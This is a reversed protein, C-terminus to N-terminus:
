QFIEIERIIIWKKRPQTGIKLRICKINVLAPSLTLDFEGYTFNGIVQYDDCVEPSESSSPSVEVSAEGILDKVAETSNIILGSIIVL